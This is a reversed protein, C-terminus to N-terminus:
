SLLERTGNSQLRPPGWLLVPRRPSPFFRVEVPVRLTVDRRDLGYGIEIGVERERSGTVASQHKIVRPSILKQGLGSTPVV